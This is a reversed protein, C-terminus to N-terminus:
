WRVVVETGIEAWNYLTAADANSLIICGYSVPTGLWGDWLISGDAMIPLAHFGNQLPGAWYIGLWYPMQLNWTAAYANPIKNQVYFTGSATERGPEGTSVVFTWQLQGNQYVYARQDSKDVVVQKYAPAAYGSPAAAVSGAAPISLQQGVYVWDPSGLGNHAQLAPYTLGYLAAIGSLTEGPRVVHTGVATPTYAQPLGDSGVPVILDQGAYIRDYNAINNASALEATTIGYQAAITSLSEGRQITHIQAALATQPWVFFVCLCALVIPAFLRLRYM